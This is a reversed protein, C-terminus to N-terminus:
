PHATTLVFRNQATFNEPYKAAFGRFVGTYRRKAAKDAFFKGAGLVAECRFVLFIRSSKPAFSAAKGAYLLSSLGFLAPNPRKEPPKDEDGSM